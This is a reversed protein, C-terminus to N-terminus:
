RGVTDLSDIPTKSPPPPLTPKPIPGGYFISLFQNQYKQDEYYVKEYTNQESLRHHMKVDHIIRVLEKFVECKLDFIFQDHPSRRVQKINVQPIRQLPRPLTLIPM